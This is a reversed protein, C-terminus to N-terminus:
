PQKFAEVAAALQNDKEEPLDYFGYQKAEESLPVEKTPQIGIEHYTVGSATVYAYTTMKAYGTYDGFWALPIFTQMIGKGFTKEGIIAKALGHDRLSATFVEAASATSGDCMVVFDLDHFMGVEEERVTCSAYNGVEISAGAYVSSEVRGNRDISQLILDDKNLIFSLIARISKLDGGPNNRVDFIFHEVGQAQLSLIAEKFQKPAPMDFQSIRVVGVTPDAKTVFSSVSIAEFPARVVSFDEMTYGEGQPRFVRFEVTTGAEGQIHKMFNTYGGLEAVSRFMGDVKVGCIYDGVKVGCGAAPANEYINIIRFVQYEYGDVTLKTQLVNVGLGVRNGSSEQQLEAFEEETYYEAYDDGTAESYAKLVAVLLEEDSVKGDYYSYTDFLHALLYLKDLSGDNLELLQNMAALEAELRAISEQKLLLDHRYQGSVLFTTIIPTLALSLALAVCLVVILATSTNKTKRPGGNTGGNWTDPTYDNPNYNM